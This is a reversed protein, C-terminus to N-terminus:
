EDKMMRELKRMRFAMDKDICSLFRNWVGIRKYGRMLGLLKAHELLCVTPIPSLFDGTAEFQSGLCGKSCMSKILCVECMPGAVGQFTVEGILFEVNNAEIDVIRDDQLVFKGAEMGPYMTRHCPVIALDGLRVYVMSQLSCGLGRGITSFVNLINFGHKVFIFEKLKGFDHGVYEWVWDVLFAIFDAFEATQKASWEENRVELLYLSEPPIGYRKFGDQFWLFNDKWREIGRSYIMPHFGFGHRANFEFLREYYNDDRPLRTVNVLWAGDCEPRNSEEYKGDVSASLILCIGLSAFDAIRKEIRNTLENDLLFTFNTPVVINQPRLESQIKAYHGLMTELVKFGIEQAFLEGSFLDIGRPSYSCDALWRLLAKLHALIEKEDRITVPYLERGHRHMYCYTCALNCDATVQIELRDFNDAIRPRRSWSRFFTRKFFSELMRNNEEQYTM